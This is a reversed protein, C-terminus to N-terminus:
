CCTRSRTAAASPDVAPREPAPDPPRTGRPRPGRARRRPGPRGAPGVPRLGTTRVSGTRSGPHAIPRGPPLVPPICGTAPAATATSWTLQVGTRAGNNTGDSERLLHYPNASLMLCYRGDPLDAPLPLQQGDLESTYIDGWGATIGQVSDRECEGYAPAGAGAYLPENDRLCFSVKDSYTIPTAEGPASVVYRASADFHWHDHTPHDIMCGAPVVVTSTDVTPSYDGDGDADLYVRQSAFRQEPPCAQSQDPYIEVPGVGINALTSEFRLVRADGDLEIHIDTAPLSILDPLLRRSEAPLPQATLSPASSTSPAASVSPPESVPPTTAPGAANGAGSCAVTLGAVVGLLAALLRM